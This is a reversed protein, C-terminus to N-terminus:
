QEQFLISVKHFVQLILSETLQTEDSFQLMCSVSQAITMWQMAGVYSELFVLHLFSM